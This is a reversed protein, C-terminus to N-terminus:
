GYNEFIKEVLDNNNCIKSYGNKFLNFLKENNEHPFYPVADISWCIREITESDYQKIEESLDFDAIYFRCKKSHLEKGLFVEIDYADNKGVFHILAMMMGLENCATEIDDDSMYEKIEKLGIFEGRGKHVIHCSDSGLQAQITYGDDRNPRYIRPLIMYCETSTEVFQISKLVKVFKFKSYNPYEIEINNMFNIIKKHENSWQRCHTTGRSKDSVKICQSSNDKKQYVIGFGGRGIEEGIINNM